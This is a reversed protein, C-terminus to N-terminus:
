VNKNNYFLHATEVIARGSATNKLPGLSKTAEGIYHNIKNQTYEISGSSNLITKITKEDPFGNNLKKILDSRQRGKLRGLLHILALTPKHKDIDRGATKGSKKESGTLDNIDDAIQFAIGFNLGADALRCRNEKKAGSLISGILCCSRFLAATKRTIIDIYKKESLQWNRRNAIQTLEGRCLSVTTSAFIEHIRPELSNCLLLIKSLLFDGLLVASENGYLSNVTPMGRRIRGDDIVDDHLLTANHLMEVVAAARIHQKTIKGCCQGSLLLLAPRIMKGRSNRLPQILCACSSDGKLLLQLNIFRQVQELEKSVPEFQKIAQFDNRM